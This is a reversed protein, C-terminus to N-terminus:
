ITEPLSHSLFNGKIHCTIPVSPSYWSPSQDCLATALAGKELSIILNILISSGQGVSHSRSHSLSALVALRGPSVSGIRGDSFTWALEMKFIVGCCDDFYSSPRSRFGCHTKIALRDLTQTLRLDLQNASVLWVVPRYKFAHSLCVSLSLSASLPLPFVHFCLLILLTFRTIAKIQSCGSDCGNTVVSAVTGKREKDSRLLAFALNM